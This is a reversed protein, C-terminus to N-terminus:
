RKRVLTLGDGLPLMSLDIREDTLLKNNLQQIALTTPETTHTDLVKGDWLTNDIFLLGNPRLLRLCHEYYENYNEKDADLFILDFPDDSPLSSLTDLAPQLHLTIKHGVGARKWYPLGISTWEESIDCTTLTGNEPLALALWLTSYGTFTGIELIRRAGILKALLHMFQGQEPSTQMVSRDLLQTVASLQKVTEPERLSVDHLYQYLDPTLIQTKSAM